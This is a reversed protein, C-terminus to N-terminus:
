DLNITILKCKHSRCLWRLECVNCFNVNKPLLSNIATLRLKKTNRIFSLCNCHKNSEQHDKPCGKSLQEWIRTAKTLGNRQLVFLGKLTQFFWFRSPGTSSIIGNLIQLKVQEIWWFTWAQCCLWHFHQYIIWELRHLIHEASFWLFNKM